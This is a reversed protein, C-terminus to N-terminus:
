VVSKRDTYGTIKQLMNNVFLITGKPDTIIIQEPMEDLLINFTGCRTCKIEYQKEGNPVALLKNCKECRLGKLSEKLSDNNFNNESM